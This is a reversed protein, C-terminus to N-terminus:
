KVPTWGPKPQSCVRATVEGQLKRVAQESSQVEEVSTLWDVAV